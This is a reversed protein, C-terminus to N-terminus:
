KSYTIVIIETMAVKIMSILRPFQSKFFGFYALPGADWYLTTINLMGVDNLRPVM